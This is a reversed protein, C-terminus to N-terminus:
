ATIISEAILFFPRQSIDSNRILTQTIQSGSPVKSITQADNLHKSATAMTDIPLRPM